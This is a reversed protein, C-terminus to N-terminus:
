RKKIVGREEAMARAIKYVNVKTGTKALLGRLGVLTRVYFLVERPPSFMKVRPNALVFKMLDEQVKWTAFDFDENNLLPAM